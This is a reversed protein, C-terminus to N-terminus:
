GEVAAVITEFVEDVPLAGDVTVLRNQSRYYDYIPKTMDTYVRLRNAVAEENDDSRHILHVETEHKDCIEDRRPPRTHINYIEGCMPCTRRGTLRRMLEDRLVRVYIPRIERGQERALTELYTAQPLTRPFGDLIYGGNCDTRRTRARVVDALVEDSVLNGAAQITAVQRGLETNEKAIARLIDGTSIQPWGFREQLRRSQTGKGSGPAGMLVVIKGCGNM